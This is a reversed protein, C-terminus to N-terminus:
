TTGSLQLRKVFSLKIRDCIDYAARLVVKLIIVGYNTFRYLVTMTTQLQLPLYGQALAATNAPPSISYPDRCHVPFKSDSRRRCVQRFRSTHPEVKARGLKKIAYPKTM